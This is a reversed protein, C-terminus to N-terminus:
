SKEKKKYPVAYQVLCNNCIVSELEPDTCHTVPIGVFSVDGPSVFNGLTYCYGNLKGNSYSKDASGCNPCAGKRYTVTFGPTTTGSSQKPLSALGLGSLFERRNM